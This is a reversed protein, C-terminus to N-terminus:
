PLSTSKALLRSDGTLNSAWAELCHLLYVKSWSGEPSKDELYM